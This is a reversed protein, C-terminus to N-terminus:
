SGGGLLSMAQGVTLVKVRSERVSRVVQRFDDPTCGFESPGSRVDHTYFILWGGNKSCEAVFRVCDEVGRRSYICVAKLNHVDVLGNNIGPEIGRASASCFRAFVRVGPSQAGYPYSFSRTMIGRSCRENKKIEAFFQLWSLVRCDSHSFTHNGVEHGKKKLQELLERDAIPDQEDGLDVLGLSAYYTGRYGEAELIEAGTICASRPVDDFTFTIIRTSPRVHLRRRFVKVLLPGLLGESRDGTSPVGLGRECRRAEWGLVTSTPGPQCDRKM